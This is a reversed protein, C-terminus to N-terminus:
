QARRTQTLGRTPATLHITMEAKLGHFLFGNHNHIEAIIEVKKGAQLYPLATVVRGRYVEDQIPHGETEEGVIRVEVPQGKRIRFFDKADISGEVRFRDTRLVTVIPDGQRVPEGSHRNVRYVIGTVPSRIAHHDLLLEVRELELEDLQLTHEAQEKQLIARQKELGAQVIELEPFTRPVLDNAAQMKTEALEAVRFQAEAYRINVDNEVKKQQIKLEAETLEANIEGIRQGESVEDGEEVDLSGIFGVGPVRSAVILGEKELSVVTCNSVTVPQGGQPAQARPGVALLTAAIIGAAQM